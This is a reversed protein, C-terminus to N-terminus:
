HRDSRANARWSSNMPWAPRAAFALAERIDQEEMYRFDAPLEPIARGAARAELIM